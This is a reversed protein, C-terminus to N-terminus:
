VCSCEIAVFGTATPHSPVCCLCRGVVVSKIKSLKRACDCGDHNMAFLLKTIFIIEDSIM